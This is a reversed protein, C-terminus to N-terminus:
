FQFSTCQFACFSNNFTAPKVTLQSSQFNVFSFWFFCRVDVTGSLLGSVVFSYLCAIVSVLIFSRPFVDGFQLVLALMVTLITSAVSVGVNCAKYKKTGEVLFGGALSGLASTLRSFSGLLGFDATTYPPLFYVILIQQLFQSSIFFGGSSILALLLCFSVHFVLISRHLLCDDFSFAGILFCSGASLAVYSPDHLIRWIAAFINEDDVGNAAAAAAAPVPVNSGNGDPTEDNQEDGTPTELSYETPNIAVSDPLRKYEVVGLSLENETAALFSSRRLQSPSRSMETVSGKTLLSRRAHPFISENAAPLVPDARFFLISLVLIGSCIVATWLNVSAFDSPSVIINPSLVFGISVGISQSM